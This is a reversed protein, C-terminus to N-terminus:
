FIIKHVQDRTYHNGCRCCKYLENGHKCKIINFESYNRWIRKEIIKDNNKNQKIKENIESWERLNKMTKIKQHKEEYKKLFDEEEMKKRIKAMYDKEGDHLHKKEYEKYHDLIFNDISIEKQKDLKEEKEKKKM